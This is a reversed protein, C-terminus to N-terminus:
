EPTSSDRDRSSVAQGNRYVTAPNNSEIYCHAPHVEVVKAVHAGECNVWLSMGNWVANRVGLDVKARRPSVAEIVRGTLPEPLLMATWEEPVAPLGSVDKKEDGERIFYAVSPGLIGSGYMNVRNCFGKGEDKPILYLREGWHIPVLERPVCRFIVRHVFGSTRLVLQGNVVKARGRAASGGNYDNWCAWKFSGHKQISLTEGYLGGSFHFQGALVALPEHQM